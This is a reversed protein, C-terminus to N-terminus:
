YECGLGRPPAPIVPEAPLDPRGLVGEVRDVLLELFEVDDVVAVTAVDPLTPVTKVLVPPRPDPTNTLGPPADERRHRQSSELSGSFNKIKEVAVLSDPATM